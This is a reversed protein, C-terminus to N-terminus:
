RVISCSGGDGKVRSCLAAAENRSLGVVRLRYVTEGNVLFRRLGVRSGRLASGYRANLRTLDRKAEAESRPAELQAAWGTSGVAAFDVSQRTPLAWGGFLDDLVRLWPNPFERLATAGSAEEPKALTKIPVPPIPTDTPEGAAAAETEAVVRATAKGTRKTALDISPQTTGVAVNMRESAPKKPPKPADAASWRESASSVESAKRTGDPRASMSRAPEPDTTRAPVESALGAVTQADGV